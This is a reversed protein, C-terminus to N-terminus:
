EKDHLPGYLEGLKTRLPPWNLLRISAEQSAIFWLRAMGELFSAAYDVREEADEFALARLALVKWPSSGNKSNAQTEVSYLRRKSMVLVQDIATPALQRASWQVNRNSFPSGIVKNAFKM